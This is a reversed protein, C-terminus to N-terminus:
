LGRTINDITKYWDDGNGSTALPVPRGGVTTYISKGNITVNSKESSMISVLKSMLAKIDSLDQAMKNVVASSVSSGRNDSDGQKKLKESQSSIVKSVNAAESVIKSTSNVAREIEKITSNVTKDISGKIIKEPMSAINRAEREVSNVMSMASRHASDIQNMGQKIPNTATDILGSLSSANKRVVDKAIKDVIGFKSNRSISSYAQNEIDKILKRPADSITKSIGDFLGYGGKLLGDVLQSGIKSLASPVKYVLIAKAKRLRRDNITITESNSKEPDNIVIKDNKLEKGIIYHPNGNSAETLLIPSKGQKLEMIFRRIINDTFIASSIGVDKLIAKFYTIPTGSFAGQKMAKAKDVLDSMKYRIGLKNLLMAMVAPGCGASRFDMAIGMDLTNYASSKQSIMKMPGYGELGLAKAYGDARDGKRAVFEGLESYTVNGDKDYDVGTNYKYALPDKTKGYLVWDDAKGVAVPYHLAAYMNTLTPQAGNRKANRLLNPAVRKFQELPSFSSPEEDPEFGWAKRYTPVVQFLGEAKTNKNKADQIWSSEAYAIRMFNKATEDGYTERAFNYMDLIEQRYTPDSLKKLHRDNSPITPIKRNSTNRKWDSWEIINGNDDYFFEEEKEEGFLNKVMDLFDFSGYGGLTSAQTESLGGALYSPYVRGSPAPSTKPLNIDRTAGYATSTGLPATTVKQKFEEQVKAEKKEEEAKMALYKKNDTLWKNYEDEDAVMEWLTQALWDTPILALFILPGKSALFGQLMNVTGAIARQTPSLDRQRVGMIEDAGWTVGKTFDFLIAVIDVVIGVPPAAYAAMRVSAKAAAKAGMTGAKTAIKPVAKLFGDCLKGGILSRTRPHLFLATLKESIVKVSQGVGIKSLSKQAVNKVGQEFAERTGKMFGFKGALNLAKRAFWRDGSEVVRETTREGDYGQSDVFNEYANGIESDAFKRTMFPVAAAAIGGALTLLKPAITKAIPAVLGLLKTGLGSIKGGLFSGLIGSLFGSKEEKTEQGQQIITANAEDQADQRKDIDAYEQGSKFKPSKFGNASAITSKGKRINEINRKHDSSKLKRSISEAYDLDVAGVAKVVEVVQVGNLHGGTVYVERPAIVEKLKDKVGTIKEWTWALGEKVKGAVWKTGDWAKGAIWSMGEMLKGFGWHLGQMTKEGIYKATNGIATVTAKAFGVIEDKITKTVSKVASWTDSLFQKTGKYLNSVFAKGIDLLALVQEKSPLITSIFKHITSAVRQPFTTIFNIANNVREVMGNIKDMVFNIPKMILNKAFRFKKKAWATFKSMGTKAIDKESFGEVTVGHVQTLLRKIYEINYAVGNTQVELKDMLENLNDNNDQRFERLTKHIDQSSKILAKITSGEKAEKLFEQRKTKAEQASEDLFEGLSGKPLANLAKSKIASVRAKVGDKTPIASKVADKYTMYKEKVRQGFSKKQFVLIHNKIRAALISKSYKESPGRAPDFCIYEDGKSGVILICHAEDTQYDDIDILVTGNKKLCDDITEVSVGDTNGTSLRADIELRWLLNAMYTFPVGNKFADDDWGFAESMLEDPSVRESLAHSIASALCAIGCGAYSMDFSRGKLKVKNQNYYYRKSVGKPNEKAKREKYDALRDQLSKSEQVEEEIDGQAQNARFKRIQKIDKKSYKENIENMSMYKTENYLDQKARMNSKYETNTATSSGYSGYFVDKDTKGTILTRFFKFPASILGGFFRGLGGTMRKIFGGVPQLIGQDFKEMLPRTLNVRINAFLSNQLTAPIGTIASFLKNATTNIFNNIPKFTQSLPNWIDEKFWRKMKDTGEGFFEKISKGAETLIGKKGTAEDGFMWTKMNHLFSGEDTGFLAKKFKSSEGAIGLALGSLALAAPGMLGFAGGTIPTLITSLGAIAGAGVLGTKVINSTKKMTAEVKNGDGFLRGFLDTKYAYIGAGLAGAAIAVPSLLGFAGVMKGVGTNGLTKLFAYGAGVGLTAKMVGNITSKNDNYFNGAKTKADGLSKQVTDTATNYADTLKDKAQGLKTNASGEAIDSVSAKVNNVAESVSAKAEAVFSTKNLEEQFTARIDDQTSDPNTMVDTIRERGAEDIGMAELRANMDAEEINANVLKDLFEKNGLIADIDYHSTKVLDQFWQERDVKLKQFIKAQALIKANTNLGSLFIKAGGLNDKTYENITDIEEQSLTQGFLNGLESSSGVSADGWGKLLHEYHIPTVRQANGGRGKGGRGMNALGVVADNDLILSDNLTAILGNKRAGYSSDQMFANRNKLYNSMARDLDQFRTYTDNGTELKEFVDRLKLFDSETLEDESLRLTELARSYTHDKFNKLTYNREALREMITKAFAQLRKDDMGNRDAESINNKILDALRSYEFELKPMKQYFDNKVYSLTRFMGKEYDYVTRERGSLLSVISSLYTPIVNIIAERTTGDFFVRGGKDYKDTAVSSRMDRDTRLSDGISRILTNDSLSATRAYNDIIDPLSKIRADFRSKFDELKFHRDLWPELGFTKLLVFPNGGSTMMMLPIANSIMSFIGQSAQNDITRAVSSSIDKFGSALDGHKLKTYWEPVGREESEEKKNIQPLMFDGSLERLQKIESLMEAQISLSKQIANATDKSIASLNEISKQTAIMQAKLDTSSAVIANNISQSALYLGEVTARSAMNSSKGIAVSTSKAMGGVVGFIARDNVKEESNDTVPQGQQASDDSPTDDFFASDDPLNFDDFNFDLGFIEEESQYFKGTRLGEFATRTMDGVFKVLPMQKLRTKIDKFGVTTETKRIEKYGEKIETYTSRTNPFYSSFMDFGLNKMSMKANHKYDSMRKGAM